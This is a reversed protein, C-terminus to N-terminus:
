ANSKLLKQSRLTSVTAKLGDSGVYQPTFGPLSLPECSWDPHCIEPVKTVTLMVARRTCAAWLAGAMGAARIVPGPIRLPRVPRGVAESFLTALTPWDYGGPTGDHLAFPGPAPTPESLACLVAAAVDAAHILTIRRSPAPAPLVGRDAARFLGLTEKDGPGYIATPRLIVCPLRDRRRELAREAARKSAAYPSLHPERAALSSILVFRPPTAMNAALDALRATATANIDFFTQRDLAKIVGAAHIVATSGDLLRTLADTDDMDGTIWTVGEQEAQPRRTLARVSLGAGTLADVIWQGLFGTAGTVAVPGSLPGPNAGTLRSPGSSM